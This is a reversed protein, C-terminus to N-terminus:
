EIAMNVLQRWAPAQPHFRCYSGTIANRGLEVVTTCVTLNRETLIGRAALDFTSRHRGPGKLYVPEAVMNQERAIAEDFYLVTSRMEQLQKLTEDTPATEFRLAATSIPGIGLLLRPTVRENPQRAYRVSMHIDSVPQIFNDPVVIRPVTVDPLSPQPSPLEPSVM